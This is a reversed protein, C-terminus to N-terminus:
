PQQGASTHIIYDVQYRTHSKITQKQELAQYPAAGTVDATHDSRRRTGIKKASM